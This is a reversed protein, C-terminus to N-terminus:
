CHVFTKKKMMFKKHNNSSLISKYFITTFRYFPVSTIRRDLLRKQNMGGAFLFNM